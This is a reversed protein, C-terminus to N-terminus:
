ELEIVVESRVRRGNRRAATFMTRSIVAMAAADDRQTSTSDFIRNATVRGSADIRVLVRVYGSAPKGGAAIPRLPAPFIDLEDIEYYTPDVAEVSAFGNWPRRANVSSHPRSEVPSVTRSPTALSEAFPAVIHARLAAGNGSFLPGPVFWAAAGHLSISVAVALLLRSLAAHESPDQRSIREM